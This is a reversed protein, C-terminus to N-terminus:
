ISEPLPGDGPPYPIGQIIIGRGIGIAIPVPRTTHSAKIMSSKM